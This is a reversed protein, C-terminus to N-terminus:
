FGDAFKSEKEKSYVNWLLKDEFCESTITEEHFICLLLCECLNQRWPKFLLYNSKRPIIGPDEWARERGKLGTNRLEWYHNKELEDGRSFWPSSIVDYFRWVDYNLEELYLLTQTRM